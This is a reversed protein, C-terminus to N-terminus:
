PPAFPAAVPQLLDFFSALDMVLIDPQGPQPKRCTAESTVVVPGGSEAYLFPLGTELLVFEDPASSGAEGAAELRALLRRASESDEITQLRYRHPPWEELVVNAVPQGGIRVPFVWLPPVSLSDLNAKWQTRSGQLGPMAALPLLHRRVPTTIVPEGEVKDLSFPPRLLLSNRWRDPTGLCNRIVELVMSAPDDDTEFNADPSAPQETLRCATSPAVPPPAGTPRVRYYNMWFDMVLGGSAFLSYPIWLAKGNCCPAPNFVRVMPVAAGGPRTCVDAAAAVMWHGSSDALTSGCHHPLCWGFVLPRCADLESKLQNWPLPSPATDATHSFLEFSPFGPRDCKGFFPTTDGCTYRPAAVCQAIAKEAQLPQSFDAGPNLPELVMQSAAAWCWTSAQQSHFPPMAPQATVAVGAMFMAFLSAMYRRHVAWKGTGGSATM